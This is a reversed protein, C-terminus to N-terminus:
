QKEKLKKVIQQVRQRTIGLKKAVDEYNMRRRVSKKLLDSVQKERPTLYM